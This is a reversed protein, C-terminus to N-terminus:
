KKTVLWFGLYKFETVVKIDAGGFERKGQHGRRGCNRFVM